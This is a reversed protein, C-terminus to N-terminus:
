GKLLFQLNEKNNHWLLAKEYDPYNREIRRFERTHVRRSGDSCESVGLYAHLMEHFVIYRIFYYPVRPCDLAPHIRILRNRETFSGFRITRRRRRKSSPPKGWTIFAHVKGQFHVANVDDFIEKLDYYNGQTQLVPLGPSRGRILHRQRRIYEDITRGAASRRPSKFWKALAHVIDPPAHLFMHHIRLHLGSGPIRRFTILSSVNDTIIAKVPEGLLQELERALMEGDRWTFEMQESAADSMMRYM